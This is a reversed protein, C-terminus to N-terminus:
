SSVDPVRESARDRCWVLVDSEPMPRAVHYGQALDCGTAGLTELTPADEVGEGVVMLDLRHALDVVSLVLSADRPSAAMDMVFTRDIKVEDVPLTKLYAMSSYGTGFDDISLRVGLEKLQHMTAIARDPDDVLTEETIELCLRGAPVDHAALAAGVRQPLSADVLSRPSLNVSVRAALGAGNWRALAALSRDLVVDTLRHILSTEEAVPIFVAPPVLGRDPHHWRVLAEFAVASGDDFAVIPQFHVELQSDSELARRLDGLMRLHAGDDHEAVDRYLVVGARSRKASYMAVDAHQLLSDVDQGDDPSWSVGISVEVDLTLDDVQFPRHIASRLRYALALVTLVSRHGGSLVVFEDGGVRACVDVPRVLATVREAVQVLLKDGTAHGLVDNVQKFRDLDLFLVASLRDHHREAALVRHGSEELLARNPLGTLHDHSAQYALREEFARGEEFRLANALAASTQGALLALGEGAHESVPARHRGVLLVRATDGALVAACVWAQGEPAPEPALDGDLVLWGEEGIGACVEDFREGTLGPSAGGPEPALRGARTLVEVGLFGLQEAAGMVERLVTPRDLTSMRRTALAVSRLQDAEAQRAATSAIQADLRTTLGVLVVTVIGLFGLRYTLSDLALQPTGWVAHAGVLVAAYGVSTAFWAGVTGRAWGRAAAETVPLVLLTWLASQADFAFGGVLAMVAVGDGVLGVLSRAASRRAARRGAVAVLNVAVVVGAPLLAWWVSYPVSVGATPVYLWLQLVILAVGLWRARVIVSDVAADRAAQGAHQVETV